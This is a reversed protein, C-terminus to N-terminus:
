IYFKNSLIHINVRLMSSKFPSLFANTARLLSVHIAYDSNTRLRKPLCISIHQVIFFLPPRADLAVFRRVNSLKPFRIHRDPPCYCVICECALAWTGRFRSWRRSSRGRSKSPRSSKEPFSHRSLTFILMFLRKIFCKWSIWLKLLYCTKIYM